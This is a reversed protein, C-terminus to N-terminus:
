SIGLDPLFFFFSFLSHIRSSIMNLGSPLVHFTSLQPRWCLFVSGLHVRAQCFCQCFCQNPPLQSSRTNGGGGGGLGGNVSSADVKGLLHIRYRLRLFVPPGARGTQLRASHGTPQHPAPLLGRRRHSWTAAPDRRKSDDDAAFHYVYQLLATAICVFVTVDCARGINRRSNETFIEM